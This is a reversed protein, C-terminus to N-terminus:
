PDLWGHVAGTVSVPLYMTTWSVRGFPGVLIRYSMKLESRAGAPYQSELGDAVLRVAGVPPTDQDLADRPDDGVGRLQAPDAWTVMSVQVSSPVASRRTRM